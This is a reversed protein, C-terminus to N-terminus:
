QDIKYRIIQRFEERARDTKRQQDAGENEYRNKEANRRQDTAPPDTMLTQERELFFRLGHVAEHLAAILAVVLM